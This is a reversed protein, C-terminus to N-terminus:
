VKCIIIVEFLAFEFLSPFHYLTPSENVSCHVEFAKVLHASGKGASYSDDKRPELRISNQMEELLIYRIVISMYEKCISGCFM